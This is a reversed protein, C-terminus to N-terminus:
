LISKRTPPFSYGWSPCSNCDNKPRIYFLVGATTELQGYALHQSSYSNPDFEFTRARMQRLYGGSFGTQVFFHRFFEFRLGAYAGLGLGSFANTKQDKDGAFTFDTSSVIVGAELAFDSTLTFVNNRGAWFVRDLRSFKLKIFNLGQNVYNFKSTDIAFTENFYTGDLGTVPDIGSNVKGNLLTTQNNLISYKMHDLGLSIAYADDFNYGIRANFQSFLTTEEINVRDKGQVGSLNFNYGAGIFQIKSKAFYSRNMGYNIFLTGSNTSVKSKRNGWSQGYTLTPLVIAILFLIRM